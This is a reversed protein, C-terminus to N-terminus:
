LSSVASSISKYLLSKVANTVPTTKHQKCITGFNSPTLRLRRLTNWLGTPADGQQTTEQEIQAAEEKNVSLGSKFESCLHHVEESARKASTSTDDQNM